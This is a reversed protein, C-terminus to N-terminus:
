ALAGERIAAGTKRMVARLKTFDPDDEEEIEDHSMGLLGASLSGLAKLAVSAQELEERTEMLEVSTKMLETAMTRIAYPVPDEEMSERLSELLGDDTALLAIFQRRM